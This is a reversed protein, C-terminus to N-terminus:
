KDLFVRSVPIRLSSQSKRKDEVILMKVAILSTSRATLFAGNVSLNDYWFRALSLASMAM